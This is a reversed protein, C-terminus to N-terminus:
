WAMGIIVKRIAGAQQTGYLGCIWDLKDNFRSSKYYTKKKKKKLLSFV